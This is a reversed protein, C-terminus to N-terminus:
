NVKKAVTVRNDYYGMRSRTGIIELGAKAAASEVEEESRAAVGHADYGLRLVTDKSRYGVAVLGDTKLIRAIEKFGAQLDHWFYITNATLIRDFQGDRFRTRELSGQEVHLRKEAIAKSYAKQAQDVMTQSLELGYLRGTRVRTLLTPFALGGGFGIDLVDHSERVDLNDIVLENVDRNGKNMFFATLKGLAGKPHGAQSLLVRAIGRAIIM